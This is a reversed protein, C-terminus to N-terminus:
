DLGIARNRASWHTLAWHGNFQPCITGAAQTAVGAITVAHEVVRCPQGLSHQPAIFLLALAATFVFVWRCTAALRRM